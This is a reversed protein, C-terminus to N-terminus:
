NSRAGLIICNAREFLSSQRICSVRRLANHACWILRTADFRLCCSALHMYRVVPHSAYLAVVHDHLFLPAFRDAVSPLADTISHVGMEGSTMLGVFQLLVLM